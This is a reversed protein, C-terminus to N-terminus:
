RQKLTNLDGASDLGLQHCLDILEYYTATNIDDILTRLFLSLAGEKEVSEEGSAPTEEKSLPVESGSEAGEEGEQSYLPITIIYIILLLIYSNINVKKVV